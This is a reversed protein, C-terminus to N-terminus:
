GAPVRPLLETYLRSAWCKKSFKRCDPTICFAYGPAAKEWLAVAKLGPQLQSPYRKALTLFNDELNQGCLETKGRMRSQMELLKAPLPVLQPYCVLQPQHAKLVTREGTDAGLSKVWGIWPFFFIVPLNWCRRGWNKGTIQGQFACVLVVTIWLWAGSVDRILM